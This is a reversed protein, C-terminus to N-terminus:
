KSRMAVAVTATLLPTLLLTLVGLLMFAISATTFSVATLIAWEKWSARGHLIFYFIPLGVLFGLEAGAIGGEFAALQFASWDLGFGIFAGGFYHAATGVAFGAFLCGAAVLLGKGVARSVTCSVIQALGGVFLMGVVVLVIKLARERLM